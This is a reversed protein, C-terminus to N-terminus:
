LLRTNVDGDTAYASSRARYTCRCNCEASCVRAVRLTKARTEAIQKDTWTQMSKNMETRRKIESNLQRELQAMQKKMLFVKFEDKERRQRTGVKMDTDFADFSSMISDLRKTTEMPEEPSSELSHM